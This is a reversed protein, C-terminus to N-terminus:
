NEIEWSVSVGAEIVITGPRYEAQGASERADASMAMMRPAYIPARTESISAVAGLSVGMTRAMLDAKHRAKELAQVLAEDTAADRDALDYSIGDMANVGAATLADLLRPLRELDDVRVEFPRDLRTRMLMDDDDGDSRRPAPVYEPQVSLSGASIDDREVGAAELARILDAAREELRDRAQRLADADTEGDHRAVAPTREWLRANLTARDPVVDLQSEAQVELRARTEEAQAAAGLLPLATLLGGLMLCRLRISPM